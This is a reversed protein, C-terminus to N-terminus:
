GPETTEDDRPPEDLAAAPDQIESRNAPHRAAGPPTPAADAATRDGPRGVPERTPDPAGPLRRADAGTPEAGPDVAHDDHTSRDGQTM